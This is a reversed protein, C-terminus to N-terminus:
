KGRIRLRRLLACAKDGLDVGSRSNLIVHVDFDRLNRLPEPPIRLKLWGDFVGDPEHTAGTKWRVPEGRPAVGLVIDGGLSKANCWGDIAVELEALTRPASIRQVLRVSTAYGGVWFSDDRYGGRRGPDLGGLHEWRRTTSSAALM